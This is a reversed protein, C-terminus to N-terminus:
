HYFWQVSTAHHFHLRWLHFYLFFVSSKISTVIWILLSCPSYLACYPDRQYIIMTWQSQVISYSLCMFMTLPLMACLIFIATTLLVVIWSTQMISCGCICVTICAIPPWTCRYVKRWSISSLFSMTTSTDWCGYSILWQTHAPKTLSSRLSSLHAVICKSSCQCYICTSVKELVDRVMPFLTEVFKLPFARENYQKFLFFKYYYNSANIYVMNSIPNVGTLGALGWALAVVQM